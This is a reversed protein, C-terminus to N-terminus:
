MSPLEVWADVRMAAEHPCAYVCAARNGSLSSCQDCVVARKTVSKEEIEATEQGLRDLRLDFVDAGFESPVDVAAALVNLGPRLADAHLRCVHLGRKKQAADQTLELKKGNLYVEVSTSQSTATLKFGEDHELPSPRFEFTHRFYLSKASNGAKATGAHRMM